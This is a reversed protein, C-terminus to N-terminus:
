CPLCGVPDVRQPFHKCHLCHNLYIKTFIAQCLLSPRSVASGFFPVVLLPQRAAERGAPPHRSVSTYTVSFHPTGNTEAFPQGREMPCSSYGM